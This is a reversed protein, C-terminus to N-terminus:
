TKGTCTGDAELEDRHFDALWVTLGDQNVMEVAVLAAADAAYEHCITGVDGVRPSRMVSATGTFARSAARLKAVRVVDNERLKAMVRVTWRRQRQAALAREASTPEQASNARMM